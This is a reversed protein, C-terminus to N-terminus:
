AFRNSDSNAPGSAQAVQWCNTSVIGTDTGTTGDKKLFTISLTQAGGNVATVVGIKFPPYGVTAATDAYRVYDQVNIQGGSASTASAAM